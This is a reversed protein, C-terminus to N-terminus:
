FRIHIFLISIDLKTHMVYKQFLRWQTREFNFSQLALDNFDKPAFFVIYKLFLQCWTLEVYVILFDLLKLDIPALFGFLWFLRIKSSNKASLVSLIDYM